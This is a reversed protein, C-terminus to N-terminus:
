EDTKIEKFVKDRNKIHIDIQKSLKEQLAYATWFPLYYTEKGIMVRIVMQIDADIKENKDYIM